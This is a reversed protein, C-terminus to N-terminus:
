EVPPIFPSTGTDIVTVPAAYNEGDATVHGERTFSAEARILTLNPVDLKHEGGESWGDKLRRLRRMIHPFDVKLEAHIGLEKAKLARGAADAAALFAKSPTCGFNICSGGVRSREFIVTERGQDAMERAFPVGGQGTGIIIVEVEQLGDM